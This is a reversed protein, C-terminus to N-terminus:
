CYGRLGSMERKLLREDKKSIMGGELRGDRGFLISVKVQGSLRGIVHVDKSNFLKIAHISLEGGM